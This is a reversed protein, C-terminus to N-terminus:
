EHEVLEISESTVILVDKIRRSKFLDTFIFYAWVHLPKEKRLLVVGIFM